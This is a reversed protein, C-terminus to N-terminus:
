QGSVIKSFFVHLIYASSLIKFLGGAGGGGVFFFCFFCVFFFFFCGDSHPFFSGYGKPHSSFINKKKAKLSQPCDTM